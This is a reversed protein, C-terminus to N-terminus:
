PMYSLQHFGVGAWRSRTFKFHCPLHKVLSNCSVVSMLHNNKFEKRSSPQMGEKLKRLNQHTRNIQTAAGWPFILMPIPCPIYELYTLYSLYSTEM